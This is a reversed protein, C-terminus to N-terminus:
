NVNHLYKMKQLNLYKRACNKFVLREISTASITLPQYRGLELMSRHKEVYDAVLM